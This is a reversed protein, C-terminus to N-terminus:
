AEEEKLLQAVERLIDGGERHTSPKQYHEIQISRRIVLKPLSLM